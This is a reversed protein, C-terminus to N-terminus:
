IQSNLLFFFAILNIAVFSIIYIPLYKQPLQKEERAFLWKQLHHPKKFFDDIEDTLLHINISLIFAKAFVSNTSTFIFLTVIALVIQFFFHHFILSTHKQHTNQLHQFIGTIDKTKVLAQAKQSEPLDPALFYWYIFHDIDIFFSGWFFGFLLYVFPFFSVGAFLWVLSTLVFLTLLPTLHKILERKM